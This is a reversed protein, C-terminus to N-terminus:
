YCGGSWTHGYGRHCGTNSVLMGRPYALQFGDIGYSSLDKARKMEEQKVWDPGVPMIDIYGTCCMRVDAYISRTGGKVSTGM